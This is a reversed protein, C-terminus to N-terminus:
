FSFFWGSGFSSAMKLWRHKTESYPSYIRNGKFPSNKTLRLDKTLIFSTLLHIIVFFTFAGLVKYLVRPHIRRKFVMVFEM